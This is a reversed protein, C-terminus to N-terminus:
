IKENKFNNISKIIYYIEKNSLKSNIPISLIESTMKDTALFNCSSSYDLAKQKYIPLPYHILTQIGKSHLYKQLDKRNKSFVIYLHYTHKNNKSERVFKLKINENYIKAIERKKNISNDLYKLKVRLIAAQLEDLRSNIGNLKHYYRDKQGYNRLMLLKDHIVKDNTTIAGGDGYAGLNKTPYFSFASSIGFNGAKISKYEAGVAQACDEIIKISFKDSIKKIKDIDTCQGYLHVPIIFRTRPTIKEEILSPNILCTDPEIDVLIPKGGAEVIGTITPFATLCTTIVEDGKKIGSARLSLNIADTGNGVSVCYKCGIYDAFEKEFLKCENGLIYYGSELVRKIASNVEEKISLYEKKFNNLEIM